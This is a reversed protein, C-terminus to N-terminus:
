EAQNHENEHQKKQEGTGSGVVGIPSVRWESDASEQDNEEDGPKKEAPPKVM